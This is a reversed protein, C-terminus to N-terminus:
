NAATLDEVRGTHARSRQPETQEVRSLPEQYHYSGALTIRISGSPVTAGRCGPCHSSLIFSPVVCAQWASSPMNSEYTLFVPCHILTLYRPSEHLRCSSSGKSSLTGRSRAITLPPQAHQQQQEMEKQAATQLAEPPEIFLPCRALSLSLSHTLSFSLRHTVIHTHTHTHTHTSRVTKCCSLRGLRGAWGAGLESVRGTNTHTHGPPAPQRQSHGQAGRAACGLVVRVARSPVGVTRRQPFSPQTVKAIHGM